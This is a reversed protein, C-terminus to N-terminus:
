AEHIFLWSELFENVGKGRSAARKIHTTLYRYENEFTDLGEQSFAELILFVRTILEAPVKSGLMLNM